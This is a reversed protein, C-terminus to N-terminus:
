WVNFMNNGVFTRHQKVKGIQLELDRNILIIMM